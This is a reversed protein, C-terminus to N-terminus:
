ELYSLNNGAVILYVPILHEAPCDYIYLSGIIVMSAPLAIYFAFAAAIAAM